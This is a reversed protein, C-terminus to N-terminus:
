RMRGKAWQALCFWLALAELGWNLLAMPQVHWGTFVVTLVVQGVLQCGVALAAWKRRLALLVGAALGFLHLGLYWLPNYMRDIVSRDALDEWQMVLQALSYLSGIVYLLAFLWRLVLAFPFRPRMADAAVSARDELPAAPPAYLHDPSQNM